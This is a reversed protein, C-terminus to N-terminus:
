GLEARRPLSPILQAYTPRLVLLAEGGPTEIRSGEPRGIVDDCAIPRGRVSVRGGRRLTRLYIREKRDIFVVPDQDRLLSRDGGPGAPTV